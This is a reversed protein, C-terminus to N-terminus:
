CGRPAVYDPARSPCHEGFHPYLPMYNFRPSKGPQNDLRLAYKGLLQCYSNEPNRKMCIQPRGNRSDNHFINLRYMDYVSVDGCNIQLIANHPPNFM